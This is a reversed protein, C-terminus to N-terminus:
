HRLLDDLISGIEEPLDLASQETNAVRFSITFSLFCYCVLRLFVLTQIIVGHVNEVSDGYQEDKNREDTERDEAPRPLTSCSFLFVSLVHEWCVDRCEDNQENRDDAKDGAIYRLVCRSFLTLELEPALDHRM